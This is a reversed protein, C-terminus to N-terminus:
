GRTPRGRQRVPDVLLDLDVDPRLPLARQGQYGLRSRVEPSTYYAGAVVTLLLELAGPDDHRLGAVAAVPPEARVADLLAALPLVLRPASAAVGDLLGGAVDVEGAAPMRGSRPILVDALAALTRRQEDSFTV